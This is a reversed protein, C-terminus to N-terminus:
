DWNKLGIKRRKRSGGMKTGDQKEVIADMLADEEVVVEVRLVVDTLASSLLSQMQPRM